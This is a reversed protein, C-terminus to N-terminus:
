WQEMVITVQTHQIVGYFYLIQVMVNLYAMDYWLFAFNQAVINIM